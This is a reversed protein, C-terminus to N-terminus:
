GLGLPLAALPGILMIAAMALALRDWTELFPRQFASAPYPAETRSRCPGETPGATEPFPGAMDTNVPATADPKPPVAPNM